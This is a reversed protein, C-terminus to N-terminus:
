KCFLKIDGHATARDYDDTPKRNGHVVAGSLVDKALACRYADTEPNLGASLSEPVKKGTPHHFGPDVPAHPRVQTTTPPKPAPVPQPPPPPPPKIEAPKVAPDVPKRESYHVRGEADVWKYVQQARVATLPSLLLATAIATLTLRGTSGGHSVRHLARYLVRHLAIGRAHTAM